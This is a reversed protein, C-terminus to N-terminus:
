AGLSIQGTPPPDDTLDPGPSIQEFLLPDQFRSIVDHSGCDPCIASPTHITITEAQDDAHHFKGFVQALNKQYTAEFFEFQKRAEDTPSHQPNNRDTFPPKAIYKCLDRVQREGDQAARIDVISAGTIDEWTDSLEAQDIYFGEYLVHMHVNWGEQGMNAEIAYIGGFMRDDYRHSSSGEPRYQRRRLKQFSDRIKSIGDELDDTNELTLTMYRVARMNMKELVANQYKSFVQAQRKEACRECVRIDCTVDVEWVNHCENCFCKSTEEKCSEM